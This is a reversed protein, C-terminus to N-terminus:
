IDFVFIHSSCIVYKVWVWVWTIPYQKWLYIDTWVGPPPSGDRIWLIEVPRMDKWPTSYGIEMGYYKWHNWRKEPPVGTVPGLDGGLPYGTGPIPYGLGLCPIGLELCPIGWSMPVGLWSLVPTGETLVPTGKKGPSPFGLWSQPIRLSCCFYDKKHLDYEEQM